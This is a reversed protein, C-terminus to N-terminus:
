SSAVEAIRYVIVDDVIGGSDDLVLSYKAKGVRMSRSRAPSRTTSSRGQARGM